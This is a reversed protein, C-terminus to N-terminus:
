PLIVDKISTGGKLKQKIKRSVRYVINFIHSIFIVIVKSTLFFDKFINRNRRFFGNWIPWSFFDFMVYVQSKSNTVSLTEEHKCM